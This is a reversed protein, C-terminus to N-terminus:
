PNKYELDRKQSALHVKKKDKTYFFISVKQLIATNENKLLTASDAKLEWETIGNKKSIQKLINLKLAAKTDIKIDKIEVPKSFLYDFYIYGSIVLIILILIGILPLTLRQKISKKM